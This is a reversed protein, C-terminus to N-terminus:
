NQVIFRVPVSKVPASENARSYSKKKFSTSEVAGSKWHPTLYHLVSLRTLAALLYLAETRQQITVADGCGVVSECWSM